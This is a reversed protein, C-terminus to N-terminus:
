EFRLKRTLADGITVVLEALEPMRELTIRGAPGSIGIASVLKDDVDYVPVAVCRVGLMYEEDDTAFGQRRGM